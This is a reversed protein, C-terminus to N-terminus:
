DNVNEYSVVLDAPIVIVVKKQGNNKVYEWELREANDLCWNVQEPTMNEYEARLTNM